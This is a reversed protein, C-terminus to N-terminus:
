FLEECYQLIVPISLQQIQKYTDDIDRTTKEKCEEATDPDMRDCVGKLYQLLEEKSLAKAQTLLHSGFVKCENSLDSRVQVQGAPFYIECNDTIDKETTHHIEEYVDELMTDVMIECFEERQILVMCQKKLYASLEEESLSQVYKLLDKGFVQCEDSLSSTPQARSVGAIAALIFVATFKM